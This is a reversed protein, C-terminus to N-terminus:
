SARHQSCLTPPRRLLIVADYIEGHSFVQSKWLGATIHIQEVKKWRPLRWYICLGFIMVDCQNLGHKNAAIKLACRSWNEKAYRIVPLRRRWKHKPTTTQPTNM